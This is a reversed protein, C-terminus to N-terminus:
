IQVTHIRNAAVTVTNIPLRVIYLYHINEFYNNINAGFPIQKNGFDDNQYTAGCHTNDMHKKKDAIYTNHKSCIDCQQYTGQSHPFDINLVNKIFDLTKM